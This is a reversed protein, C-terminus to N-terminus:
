GFKVLPQRKPNPASVATKVERSGKEALEFLERKSNIHLKSYLNKQHWKVTNPQLELVDAIETYTYGRLTLEAVRLEKSSLAGFAQMDLVGDANKDVRQEPMEVVNDKHNVPASEIPTNIVGEGSTRREEALAALYELFNDIEPIHTKRLGSGNDKKILELSSVIPRIFSRRIFIVALLSVALLASVAGYFVVSSQNVQANWDPLPVFLGLEWSENAFPSGSPYLRVARTLGTYERNDKSRWIGPSRNQELKLLGTTQSTLYSNGAVLGAGTDYNGGSVHMLAAFVHPYESYEPSYLLKFLMAGMEIGCIGYVTGDHAVLPVCLLMGYESNGALLYRGSWYYLRSLDAGANEGAMDLVRNYFDMDRIDFEMRWQGILETGNARAVSAPGRLCHIRSTIMNINNPDMRKFFIGARSFAANGASPNVTSDLVVFAGSCANNSLVALLTKAHAALLSEILHPHNAIEKETVGNKQAWERTDQSLAAALSVGRLSLRDFDNSLSGHLHTIEIDLWKARSKQPTSIVGSLVLVLFGAGAAIVAFGAFFTFLKVNLPVAKKDAPRRPSKRFLM